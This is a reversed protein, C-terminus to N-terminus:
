WYFRVNCSDWLRFYLRSCKKAIFYRFGSVCVCSVIWIRIWTSFNFFEVWLCSFFSLLINLAHIGKLNIQNRQDLKEHSLKPRYRQPKIGTNCTRTTVFGKRYFWGCMNVSLLTAWKTKGGFLFYFWCEVNAFVRAIGDLFLSRFVDVPHFKVWGFLSGISECALKLLMFLHILAVFSIFSINAFINAAARFFKPTLNLVSHLYFFAFLECLFKIRLPLLNSSSFKFCLSIIFYLSQYVTSIPFSSFQFNAISYARACRLKLATTKM